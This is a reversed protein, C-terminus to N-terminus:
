KTSVYATGESKITSISHVADDIRLKVNRLHKVFLLGGGELEKAFSDFADKIDQINVAKEVVCEEESDQLQTETRLPIRIITGLFEKSPDYQPFASFVKLQNKLEPDNADAVTDYM